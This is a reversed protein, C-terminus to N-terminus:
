CDIDSSIASQTIFFFYSPQLVFVLIESYIRLLDYNLCKMPKCMQRQQTAVSAGVISISFERYYKLFAAVENMDYIKRRYFEMVYHSLGIGNM